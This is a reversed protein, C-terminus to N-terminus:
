GAAPLWSHTDLHLTGDPCGGGPRAQQQCGGTHLQTSHYRLATRNFCSANKGVAVHPCTAGARAQASNTISCWNTWNHYRVRGCVTLEKHWNWVNCHSSSSSSIILLCVSLIRIILFMCYLYLANPIYFLSVLLLLLLNFRRLILCYRLLTYTFCSTLSSCFVAINSM